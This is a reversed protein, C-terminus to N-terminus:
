VARTQPQAPPRSAPEWPAESPSLPLELWFTSGHGEVSRFDIEGGHAVVIDRAVALGIGTGAIGKGAAGARYFREFIRDHHERPIGLGDDTVSVRARDRVIKVQVGIAGGEPSYKIANSFLNGVVQALRDPDGEVVVAQHPVDLSLRHRDTNGFFLLVQERVLTVLELPELELDFRGEELLRVDLFDEALAALRRAEGDVIELYRRREAPPFDRELLLSTFGLVSSLPTRLEHSVMSILDSKHRESEQLRLNQQVLTDRGAELARTMSNFAAALAAVESPGLEPLRVDFDGKAVEAAAAAARRVPRAVSRAIWAGFALVLLVSALLGAVGVIEARRTIAHVSAARRASRARETRLMADLTGRIQSLRHMNEDNSARGRATAPDVKAIALVPTAYDHVYLRLNNTLSRARREQVPDEEVLFHLRSAALAWRKLARDYPQRSAARRTLIYGRLGTEFDAVLTEVGLTAATVDKSHSERDVAGRLSTVALLFVVFIAGVVAAVLFAIVFVRSVLGGRIV